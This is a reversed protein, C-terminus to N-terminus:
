RDDPIDVKYLPRRDYPRRSDGWKYVGFGGLMAAIGTGFEQANFARSQVFTDYGSSACMYLTVLVVLIAGADFEGNRDTLM